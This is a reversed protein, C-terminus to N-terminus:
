FPTVHGGKSKESDHGTVSPRNLKESLFGVPALKRRHSLRM